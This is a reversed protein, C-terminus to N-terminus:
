LDEAHSGSVISDQAAEESPVHPRVDFISRAESAAARMDAIPRTM